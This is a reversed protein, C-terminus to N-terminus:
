FHPVLNFGGKVFAVFWAHPAFGAFPTHIISRHKAFGDAGILKRYHSIYSFVSRTLGGGNFIGLYGHHFRAKRGLAVAAAAVQNVQQGGAGIGQLYYFGVVGGLGYASQHHLCPGNGLLVNVQGGGTRYLARHQM